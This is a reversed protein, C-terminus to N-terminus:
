SMCTTRLRHGPIVLAAAWISQVHDSGGRAQLLLPISHLMHHVLTVQGNTIQRASQLQMHWVITTAKYLTMHTARQLAAM